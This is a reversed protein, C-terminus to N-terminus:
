QGSRRARRVASRRCSLGRSRWRTSCGWMCVHGWVGCLLCVAPFCFAKASLLLGAIRVEISNPDLDVEWPSVRPMATNGGDEWKVALAEWPDADPEGTLGRTSVITGRFWSGKRGGFQMRFRDGAQWKKSRGTEYAALPVVYDPLAADAHIPLVLPESAREAGGAPSDCRLMLWATPPRTVCLWGERCGIAASLSLASAAYSM